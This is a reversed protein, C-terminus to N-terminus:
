VPRTSMANGDSPVFVMASCSVAATGCICVLREVVPGSHLLHPQIALRNVTVVM